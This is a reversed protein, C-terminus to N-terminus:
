SHLNGLPFDIGIGLGTCQKSIHFRREDAGDEGILSWPDALSHRFWVAGCRPFIKRKASSDEAEYTKSPICRTPPRSDLFLAFWGVEGPRPDINTEVWNGIGAQHWASSLPGSRLSCRSWM